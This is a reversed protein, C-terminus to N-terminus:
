LSFTLLADTGRWGKSEQPILRLTTCNWKTLLVVKTPNKVKQFVESVLSKDSIQGFNIEEITFEQEKTAKEPIGEEKECGCFLLALLMASLLNKLPKM